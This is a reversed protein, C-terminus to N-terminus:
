AAKKSEPPPSAISELIHKELDAERVLVFETNESSCPVFSGQYWDRWINQVVNGEELVRRARLQRGREQRAVARSNHKCCNSSYSYSSCSCDEQWDDDGEAPVLRGEGGVLTHMHEDAQTVTVFVRGDAPPFHDVAHFLSGFIHQPAAEGYRLAGFALALRRVRAAERADLFYPVPVVFGYDDCPELEGVLYVTDLAFNFWARPPSWPNSLPWQPLPYLHWPRSSPPRFWPSGGRVPLIPCPLPAPDLRDIQAFADPVRWAFAPEYHALALARTERNVRLLAPVRPCSPRAPRAPYFDGAESASICSVAVVRPAILYEWINLRIEAPLDPFRAFREAGGARIAAAQMAQAAPVDLGDSVVPFELWVSTPGHPYFPPYSEM